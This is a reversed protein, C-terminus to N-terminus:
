ENWRRRIGMVRLNARGFDMDQAMDQRVQYTAEPHAMDESIGSELMIAMREAYDYEYDDPTKM